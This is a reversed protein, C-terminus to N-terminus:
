CDERENKMKRKVNIMILKLLDYCGDYPEHSIHGCIVKGQGIEYYEYSYLFDKGNSCLTKRTATIHSILIGNVKTEWTIM